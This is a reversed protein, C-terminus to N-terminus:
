QEKVKYYVIHELCADLSFGRNKMERITAWLGIQKIRKQGIKISLHSYFVTNM